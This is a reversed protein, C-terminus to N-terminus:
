RYGGLGSRERVRERRQAEDDMRQLEDPSLQGEDIDEPPIGMSQRVQNQHYVALARTAVEPPLPALTADTTGLHAYLALNMAMTFDSSGGKPHDVRDDDDYFLEAWERVLDPDICRGGHEAFTRVYRRSLNFLGERNKGSTWVGPKDSLAGSVSEENAKRYLVNWYKVRKLLEDFFLLGHNNAEGAVQADNYWWCAEATRWAMLDPAARGAFVAVVNLSMRDLIVIPTWDGGPDGSALDVGAIYQHRPKPTEYIRWRGGSTIVLRPAKRDGSLELEVQPPLEGGDKAAQAATSYHVLGARDFVRRGSVLFCTQPDSAYEQDMVDQDGGCKNERTSVYWAMQRLTLGHEAMLKADHESLDKEEFWPTATYTPDEFWPSFFPVWDNRGPINANVWLNHFYNGIGNPTSEVVILCDPDDGATQLIATMLTDADEIFALESIHLDQATFGRSEGAATVQMRSDNHGFHILKKTSYKKPPKVSEPLNEYFTHTMRFIADASDLNHAVVLAQRLPKTHCRRFLEAETATSMGLRRSKLIVIRPPIGLRRREDIVAMLRAQEPKMELPVLGRADKPVIKLCTRFYLDRNAGLEDLTLNKKRVRPM